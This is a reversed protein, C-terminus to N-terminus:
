VQIGKLKTAVYALADKRKTLGTVHVKGDGFPAVTSYSWQGQRRSLMGVRRQTLEDVMWLRGGSAPTTKLSSGAAREGLVVSRRAMRPSNDTLETGDYTTEPALKYKIKYNMRKGM